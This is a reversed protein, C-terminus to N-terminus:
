VPLLIIDSDDDPALYRHAFDFYSSEDVQNIQQERQVSPPPFISPERKTPELPM